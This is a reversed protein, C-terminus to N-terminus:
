GVELRCQGAQDDILKKIRRNAPGFVPDTAGQRWSVIIEDGGIDVEASSIGTTSDNEVTVIIQPGLARPVDPFEQPPHREVHVATITRQGGTRPCYVVTEGFEQELPSLAMATFLDDFATM